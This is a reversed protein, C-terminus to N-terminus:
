WGTRLWRTSEPRQLSREAPAGDLSEGDGQLASFALWFQHAPMRSGEGIPADGHMIFHKALALPATTSGAFAANQLDSIDQQSLIWGMQTNLPQSM